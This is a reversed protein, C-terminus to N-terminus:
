WETIRLGDSDKQQGCIALILDVLAWIGLTMWGFFLKALGLGIRGAYFRDVGLGGLFFSLLVLVLRSKSSRPKRVFVHNFESQENQYQNNQETNM